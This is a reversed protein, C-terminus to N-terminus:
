VRKKLGVARRVICARGILVSGRRRTAHLIWITDETSHQENSADPGSCIASRQGAIQRTQGPEAAEGGSTWSAIWAVIHVESEARRGMVERPEKGYLGRPPREHVM